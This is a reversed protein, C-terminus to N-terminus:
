SQKWETEIGRTVAEPDIHQGNMIKHWTWWGQFAMVLFLFYLTALAGLHQVPFLYFAYVIDVVVWLIWNEIRKKTQLYQAAISIVATSADCWPQKVDLKHHSELYGWIVCVVASGLVWALRHRNSLATVPLDDNRTPGCRLWVWWGYISIPLYYLIQLLANSPDLAKWFIYGFLTVSVINTPWTGIKNRVAYIVSAIGTIYAVLGIWGGVQEWVLQVLPNM